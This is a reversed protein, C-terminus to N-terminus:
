NDRFLRIEFRLTSFKNVGIKNYTNDFNSSYVVRKENKSYHWYGFAKNQDYMDNDTPHKYGRAIFERKVAGKAEDDGFTYTNWNNYATQAAAETNEVNGILTAYITVKGGSWVYRWASCYDTGLFRIARIDTASVYRFYSSEWIGAKTDNDYGFKVQVFRNLYRSVKGSWVWSNPDDGGITYNSNTLSSAILGDNTLPYNEHWAPIISLWEQLDPMHYGSVPSSGKAPLETQSYFYGDNTSSALINSSGSKKMNTTSLYYLPNMKIDITSEVTVECKKTNDLTYTYNDGDVISSITINATGAKVGTVDVSTGTTASLTAKDTASNSWTVTGYDTPNDVVTGPNFTVTGTKEEDEGGADKISLTAPSISWDTIAKKAITATISAEAVDNYNDDGVVKYYVTYDGANKGQFNDNSFVSSYEGDDLKWFMTGATTSGESTLLNQFTAPHNPTGTGDYTLTAAVPPTVVPDAKQITFKQVAVQGVYDTGEKGTAVVLATGANTNAYYAYDFHTGNTLTAGSTADTVVPTPTFASGNYTVDDVTAMTISGFQVPTINHTNTVSAWGPLTSTMKLSQSGISLNIVYQYGENFVVDGTAKYKATYDVGNVSVAVVIFETNDTITQPPLLCAGYNSMAITGPEALTGSGGLVGTTPTFGIQRKINQVTIGNIIVDEISGDSMANVILKAMKHKFPINLVNDSYAATMAAHSAHDGAWMLDSAKYSADSTQDAEVAFTTTGSNVTQPYLAYLTITKTPDAPWYLRQNTKLPNVNPAENTPAIATLLPSFNNNAQDSTHWVYGQLVEDAAFLATQIDTEARTSALAESAQMSIEHGDYSNDLAQEATDNTACAALVIAALAMLIKNNSNMM